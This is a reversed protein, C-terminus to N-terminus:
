EDAPYGHRNKGTSPKTLWLNSDPVHTKESTKDVQEPRVTLANEAVPEVPAYTGCPPDQAKVLDLAARKYVDM